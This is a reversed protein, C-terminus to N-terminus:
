ARLHLSNGRGARPARAQPALARRAEEVLAEVMLGASWPHESHRAIRALAQAWATLPALSAGPKVAQSPFYRPAGGSAVCLADHCLKQLALVLRALPWGTFPAAEGRLMLSPFQTWLDAEIGEEAWELAHLPQGGCAALMVAPDAVGRARLWEAAVDAPPLAIPLAQCRSRITPLLADPAGCALIFRAQGPPEELTKLLTNSAIANIREAPHLVVVKGRGRASTTQAFAVVARVAEVKIEKSPKAKGAREGGGEEGDALSAWGLPERLAEPLLVLLDPHTHSQVLRCAGCVGCPKRDLATLASAECLWAQALTIALDFQGVGEPGHVLLAHAPRRLGDTLADALWPLPLAGDPGVM